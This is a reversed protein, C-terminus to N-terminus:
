SITITNSGMGYVNGLSWYSVVGSNLAVRILVGNDRLIASVTGITSLAANNLVVRSTLTNYDTLIIRWNGAVTLTAGSPIAKPLPVYISLNSSGSYCSLVLNTIDITDGVHYSGDDVVEDIAANVDTATLGSATNDYAIDSANKANVENIAGIITKNTTDLGGTGSFLLNLNSYQGIQTASVKSTSGNRAQILYSDSDVTGVSFDSIKQGTSPTTISM